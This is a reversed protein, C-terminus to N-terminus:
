LPALESLRELHQYTDKEITQLQPYDGGHVIRHVACSIDEQRSVEGLGQDGILQDLIYRFAEEHGKVDGVEKGKALQEGGREYTLTPPPSTIGDIQVIALAEEDLNKGKRKYVSVKVSSSGANISLIIELM